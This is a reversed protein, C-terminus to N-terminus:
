LTLASSLESQPRLVRRHRVRVGDVAVAPVLDELEKLEVERLLVDADVDRAERGRQLLREVVQALLLPLRWTGNTSAYLNILKVLGDVRAVARTLM